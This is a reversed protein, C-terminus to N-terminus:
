FIKAFFFDFFYFCPAGAAPERWIPEHAFLCSRKGDSSTKPYLIDCLMQKKLSMQCCQKVGRMKPEKANFVKYFNAARKPRKLFLASIQV